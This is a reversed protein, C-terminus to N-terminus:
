LSHAVLNEFEMKKMIQAWGPGQYVPKFIKSNLEIKGLYEIVFSLFKVRHHAHCCPTLIKPKAFLFLKGCHADCRM